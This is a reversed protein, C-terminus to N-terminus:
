HAAPKARGGRVFAVVFAIAGALPGTVFAGTMAAEVSPDFQNASLAGILLGGGFAGVVYGGMAWLMAVAFRKM